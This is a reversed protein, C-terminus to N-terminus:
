NFLITVANTLNSTPTGVFDRHWVQFQLITGPVATQFGGGLPINAPDISFSVQGSSDTPAIQTNYRGLTGGLCLTGQGGGLMPINGFTTGSVLLCFQGAPLASARATKFTTASRTGELRLFGRDGTSNTTGECYQWAPSDQNSAFHTAGYVDFQDNATDRVEWGLGIFRSFAGGAWRSAASAGFSTINDNVPSHAVRRESIALFAGEVLDLCTVRTTHENGVRDVYVLVFEEFTTSLRPLDEDSSPAHESLSVDIANVLGANRCILVNLDQTITAGDDYSVLYTPALGDIVLADSVDLDTAAQGTVTQVNTAANALSGDGNFQGSWIEQETSVLNLNIFAVNWLNTTATDGTSESVRVSSHSEDADFGKLTLLSSTIAGTSDVTVARAAKGGSSFVRDWVVLFELGTAGSRNGGVDSNSNTWTISTGGTDAIEFSVNPATLTTTDFIRGLIPDDAAAEEVTYVVLAVDDGNLTAVEPDVADDVTFDISRQELFVGSSSIATIFVDRDTASFPDEYVLLFADNLADYAVDVNSQDATADTNVSWTTFIPDITIDGAAGAVFEAPVTLRLKGGDLEAPVDVSAGREDFAVAAGYNMGGEPGSFRFGGGLPAAELESVVDLTVVIEGSKGSSEIHFLQEASELGLDYQVDVPGRDLLFSDGRQTVTADGVLELSRGGITAEAVRFSVPWNQSARSGLFPIYTFGDAAIRAKYALTRAWFAEGDFDHMVVPTPRAGSFKAGAALLEEDTKFAASPAGPGPLYSPAKVPAMVAGDPPGGVYQSPARPVIQEFDEALEASQGAALPAAALFAVLATPSAHNKM